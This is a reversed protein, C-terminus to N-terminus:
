TGFQANLRRESYATCLLVRWGRDTRILNYTTSFQWPPQNGTRAINWRIDAVAYQPGQENFQGHEFSAKVFGSERYLRCLAVMNDRIPEYASWHTYGSDSAMGSPIAYLRAVAEGDRANFADRYAAFFAQIEAPM